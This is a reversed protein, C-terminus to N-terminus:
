ASSLAELYGSFGESSGLSGIGTAPDWGEAAEFGWIDGSSDTCCTADNVACNNKGETIDFFVDQNKYLVPNIWGFKGGHAQAALQTIGAMVPASASTGSVAYQEGGIIVVYNNGAASIDPYGRGNTNYGSVSTPSMSSLGSLYSSVSTQQFSLDYGNAETFIESFGGGSTVVGTPGECVVEDGKSFGYTAGVTTVYPCSAPFQPRYADCGEGNTAGADGSSVFFTTGTMSLTGFEKCLHEEATTEEMGYSISIVTPTEDMESLAWFFELFSSYQFYGLDQSTSVRNMASLYQVDLNPEDCGDADSSDCTSTQATSSSPYFKLTTTPLEYDEEFQKLDDPSVEMEMSSAYKFEMVGGIPVSNNADLQPVTYMDYLVTPTVYHTGGQSLDRSSVKQTIPLDTIGSIHGICNKFESSGALNEVLSGNFNNLARVVIQGQSGGGVVRVYRHWLLTRNFLQENIDKTEVEFKLFDGHRSEKILKGYTSFTEKVINSCNELGQRTARRVHANSHFQRFTSTGPTHMRIFEDQDFNMKLALLFQIPQSEQVEAMKYWTPSNGTASVACLLVAECFSLFLLASFGKM